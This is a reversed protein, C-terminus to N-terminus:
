KNLVKLIAFIVLVILPVLMLTGITLYPLVQVSLIPVLSSFASGILSFVDAYGNGGITVGGNGDASTGTLALRFAESITASNKIIPNVFAGTAQGSYALYPFANVRSQRVKFTKYSADLWNFGHANVYLSGSDNMGYIASGIIQWTNADDYDSSTAPHVSVHDLYLVNKFGDSSARTIEGKENVFDRGYFNWYYFEIGNYETANDGLYFNPGRLRVGGSWIGSIENSVFAGGTNSDPSGNLVRYGWFNEPVKITEYVAPPTASSAEEGSSSSVDSSASSESSSSSPLDGVRTVLNWFSGSYEDLTITTGQDVNITRYSENVWQGYQMVVCLTQGQGVFDIMPMGQEDYASIENFVDSPIADCTFDLSITWNYSSLNAYDEWSPLLYVGAIVSVSTEAKRPSLGDMKGLTLTVPSLDAKEPSAPSNCAHILSGGILLSGLLNLILSVGLTINKAKEKNM